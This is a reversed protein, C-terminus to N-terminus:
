RPLHDPGTSIADGQAAAKVLRTHEWDDVPESQVALLVPVGGAIRYRRRLRPNYLLQESAFYLLERKDIPCVLIRLLAPEITM